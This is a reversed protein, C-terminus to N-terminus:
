ADKVVGAKRCLDMLAQEAEMMKKWRCGPRPYVAMDTGPKLRSRNLRFSERLLRKLRNRRVAAGVKRSVSLGMRSPENSRRSRFWCILDKRVFKRGDTFVRNLDKGTLRMSKPFSGGIVLPKNGRAPPFGGIAGIATVQM